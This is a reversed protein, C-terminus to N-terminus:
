DSVSATISVTGASRFLDPWSVLVRQHIISALVEVITNFNIHQRHEDM